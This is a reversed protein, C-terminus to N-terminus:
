APGIIHYQGHLAILLALGSRYAVLNASLETSWLRVTGDGSASMLLQGDPSFDVAYVPRSHGRLLTTNSSEERSRKGSRKAVDYLRVSSDAFGGPM